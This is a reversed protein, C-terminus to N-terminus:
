ITPLTWGMITTSTHKVPKMRISEGFGKDAGRERERKAVYLQLSPLNNVGSINTPGTSQFSVINETYAMSENTVEVQRVAVIPNEYRMAKAM